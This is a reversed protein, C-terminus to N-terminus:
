LVEANLVLLSLLLRFIRSIGLLFPSLSCACSTYIEPPYSQYNILGSRKINLMDVLLVM